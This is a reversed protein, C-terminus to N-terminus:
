IIRSSKPCISLYKDNDSLPKPRGEIGFPDEGDDVHSTLWAVAFRVACGSHFRLRDHLQLLSVRDFRADGDRDRHFDSMFHGACPPTSDRSVDVSPVSDAADAGAGILLVVAM